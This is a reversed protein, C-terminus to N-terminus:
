LSGNEERAQNQLRYLTNLAELPTLTMIDIALLEEAISSSFLSVAAVAQESSKVNTHQASATAAPKCQELEHLAQQAREIIRKPLGALQAVHIGYSKDAGGPIIRRLFVIDNGREKVAVSYNKIVKSTDALETLEHYHTAFLTKAKVKDRIYEVVARAISMGDFTSTGRGIEDLIILSNATAYKVIQATETMEVM